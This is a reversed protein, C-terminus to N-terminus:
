KVPYILNKLGFKGPEKSIVWESAKWSIYPLSKGCPFKMLALIRRAAM